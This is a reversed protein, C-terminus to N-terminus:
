QAYIIEVKENVLNVIYCGEFGSVNGTTPPIEEVFGDSTIKKSLESNLKELNYRYVLGDIHDLYFEFVSDNESEIGYIIFDNVSLGKTLFDAKLIEVALGEKSKVTKFSSLRWYPISSIISDLKNISIQNLGEGFDKKSTYIDSKDNSHNQECSIFVTFFILFSIKLCARNKM